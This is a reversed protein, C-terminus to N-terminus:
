FSFVPLRNYCYKQRFFPLTNFGSGRVFRCPSKNKKTELTSDGSLYCAAFCSTSIVKVHNFFLKACNITGRSGAFPRIRKKLIFLLGDMLVFSYYFRSQSFHNDITGPYLEPLQHRITVVMTHCCGM